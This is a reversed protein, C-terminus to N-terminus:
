KVGLDHVCDPASLPRGEITYIYRPNANGLHLVLSKECNLTLQWLDSWFSIQSLVMHLCICDIISVIVKYIKSDGAFSSLKIGNTVVSPMDNVYIIFFKPGLVTGQPVGSLVSLINSNTNNICVYLSLSRVLFNKNM